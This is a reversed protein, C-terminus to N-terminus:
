VLVVVVEVVEHADGGLPMVIVVLPEALLVPPDISNLLPSARAAVLPLGEGVVVDPPCPRPLPVATGALPRIPALPDPSTPVLEVGSPSLPICRPKGALLGEIAKRCDKM